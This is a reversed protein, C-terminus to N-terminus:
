SGHAPASAVGQLARVSRVGRLRETALLTNLAGRRVGKDKSELLKKLLHPPTICSICCCIRTM